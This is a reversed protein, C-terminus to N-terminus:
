ADLVLVAGDPWADLPVAHVIAQRALGAARRLDCPCVATLCGHIWLGWQMPRVERRPGGFWANTPLVESQGRWASLTRCVSM